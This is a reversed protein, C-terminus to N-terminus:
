WGVVHDQGNRGVLRVERVAGGHSGPWVAVGRSGPRWGWLEHYQSGRGVVHDQGCLGVM